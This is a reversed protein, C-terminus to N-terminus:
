WGSLERNVDRRLEAAEDWAESAAARAAAAEARAEEVARLLRAREAAENAKEVMQNVVAYYADRRAAFLEACDAASAEPSKCFNEIEYVPFAVNFAKGISGQIIHAERIYYGKQRRAIEEPSPPARKIEPKVRSPATACPKNTWVGNCEYLDAAAPAVNVLILFFLRKM